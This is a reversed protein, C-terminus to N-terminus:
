DSGPNGAKTTGPKRGNKAEKLVAIAQKIHTFPSPDKGKLVASLKM